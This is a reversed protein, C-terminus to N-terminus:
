KKDTLSKRLSQYEYWADLQTNVTKLFHWLFVNGFVHKCNLGFVNNSFWFGLVALLRARNNVLFLQNGLCFVGGTVSRMDNFELSSYVWLNLYRLISPPLILIHTGEDFISTSGISSCSIIIMDMCCAVLGAFKQSTKGHGSHRM